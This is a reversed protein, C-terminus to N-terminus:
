AEGSALLQKGMKTLGKLKHPDQTPLGQCSSGSLLYKLSQPYYPKQQLKEVRFLLLRPDYACWYAYSQTLLMKNVFVLLPWIQSM